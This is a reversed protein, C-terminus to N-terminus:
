ALLETMPGENVSRLGFSDIGIGMANAITRWFDNNSRALSNYQNADSRAIVRSTDARGDVLRHRPYVVAHNTRFYGQADGIIHWPYDHNRHWGDGLQGCYIVLTNDLLTTGGGDDRSELETLLNALVEMKIREFDTIQRLLTANPPFGKSALHVLDEHWDGSFGFMAGPPQHMRITVVRTQDAHLAAAALKPMWEATTQWTGVDGGRGSWADAVIGREPVDITAPGGPSTVPGGGSLSQRDYMDRLQEQYRGITVGSARGDLNSVLRSTQEMVLADIAARRQQPRDDMVPPPDGPDSPAPPTYMSFVRDWARTPDSLFPVKRGGATYTGGDTHQYSTSHVVALELSSLPRPTSAALQGAIFQDISIAGAAYAASRHAGTLCATQGHAHANGPSIPDSYNCPVDIGHVATMRSKWPALPAFPEALQWGAGATFPSGGDMGRNLRYRCLGTVDHFFIIRLPRTTQAKAKPIVGGAHLATIAAGAGLTELFTRRNTKTTM